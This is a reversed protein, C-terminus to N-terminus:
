LSLCCRPPPCFENEAKEDGGTSTKRCITKKEFDFKEIDNFNTRMMVDDSNKKSVFMISKTKKEAAICRKARQNQFDGNSAFTWETFLLGFASFCPLPTLQLDVFCHCNTHYTLFQTM